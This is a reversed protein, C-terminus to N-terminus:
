CIRSSYSCVQRRMIWVLSQRASFGTILGAMDCSSSYDSAQSAASSALVYDYRYGRVKQDYHERMM